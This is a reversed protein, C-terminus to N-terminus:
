LVSLARKKHRVGRVSLTIRVPTPVFTPVTRVAAYESREHMGWKLM